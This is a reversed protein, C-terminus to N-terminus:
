IYNLSGALSGLNSLKGLQGLRGSRNLRTLWKYMGLAMAIVSLGMIMQVASAPNKTLFYFPEALYFPLPYLFNMVPYGYEHNLRSLWRVPFQGGKLSQHFATLRITMWEGDHSTYFGPRVLNWLLPLTILLLFLYISFNINKFKTMYCGSSM